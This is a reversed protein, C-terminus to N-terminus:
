LNTFDTKSSGWFGLSDERRNKTTVVDTNRNNQLFHISFNVWLLTFQGIISHTKIKFDQCSDGFVSKGVSTLVNDM